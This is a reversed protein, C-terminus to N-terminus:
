YKNIFKNFNNHRQTSGTIKPKFVQKKKNAIKKWNKDVIISNTLIRTLKFIIYGALIVIEILQLLIKM